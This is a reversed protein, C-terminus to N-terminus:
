SLSMSRRATGVARLAPFLGVLTDVDVAREARRCCWSATAPTSTGRAASGTPCRCSRASSSSARDAGRHGPARRRGSGARRRSPPVQLDARRPEEDLRRPLPHAAAPHLPERVSRLAAHRLVHRRAGPHASRRPDARLPRGVQRRRALRPDLPHLCRRHPAAGRAEPAAQVRRLARCGPRRGSGRRSRERRTARARKRPAEAPSQPTRGDPDVVPGGGAVSGGALARARGPRSRYLTATRRHCVEAIFAISIAGALRACRVSVSASKTAPKVGAASGADPARAPGARHRLITSGAQEGGGVGGERGAPQDRAEGQVLAARGSALTTPWPKRVPAAIAASALPVM